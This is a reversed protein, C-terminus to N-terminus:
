KLSANKRKKKKKKKTHKVKEEEDNEGSINERVLKGTHSFLGGFMWRSKVFLDNGMNGSQRVRAGSNPNEGFFINNDNCDSIDTDHESAGDVIDAVTAPLGDIYGHQHLHQLDSIAEMETNTTILFPVRISTDRKTCANLAEEWNYDPCTFGPNFFVVFDPSPIKALLEKDYNNCHSRLIVKCSNGEHKRKKQNEDCNKDKSPNIMRVERVSKSPCNPGIFILRVTCISNYTSVLELLSEAYASYVDDCSSHKLKFDGWLESEESAGVIHVTFSKKPGQQNTDLDSQRINKARRNKKFHDLTPQFCPADLLVNALTAPYSEYESTIRDRAAEVEKATASKCLSKKDQDEVDDDIQCLRLLACIISSHGHSREEDTSSIVNADLKRCEKSCYWVRKCTKCCVDSKDSLKLKAACTCCSDFGLRIDAKENLAASIKEDIKTQQEPLEHLNLSQLLDM